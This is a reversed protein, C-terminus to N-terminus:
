RSEKDLEAIATIVRKARTRLYGWNTARGQINCTEVVKRLVEAAEALIERESKM